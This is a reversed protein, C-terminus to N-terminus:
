TRLTEFLDMSFQLLLQNCLNWVWCHLLNSFIFAFFQWFHSLEFRRVEILILELEDIVWMCMKMIDVVLIYPKLVIWQFNYSSNIVCVRYRLTHCFPPSLCVSLCPCVKIGESSLLPPPPPPPAPPCLFSWM